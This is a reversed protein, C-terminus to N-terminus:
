VMARDFFSHMVKLFSSPHNSPIAFIEKVKTKKIIEKRLKEAIEEGKGKRWGEDIIIYYVPHYFKNQILNLTEFLKEKESVPYEETLIVGISGIAGSALFFNLSSMNIGVPLNIFEVRIKDTPEYRGISGFSALDNEIGSLDIKYNDFNKLIDVLKIVAERNESFVLVKPSSVYIFERRVDEIKETYRLIVDPPILEEKRRTEDKVPKMLTFHRKEILENITLLVEYDPFTCNEVIDGVKTYFEGLLLVEKVIPRLDPDEESVPKVLKIYDNPSPLNKKKKEFEDLQRMAEMILNDPLTKIRVPSVPKGPIFEFKGKKWQLLRFLAKEGEIKGLMANIIHGKEIYVFGKEGKGPELVVTGDRKNLVLVQILDILHMQELKGEIEKEGKDIEKSSFIKEMLKSVAERVASLTVRDKKVIFDQKEKLDEIEKDKRTVFIISTKSVKPNNRIIQVLNSVPIVSIESDLVIIDPQEAIIADLARGGGRAIVVNYGEKRLSDRLNILLKQDDSSALIKISDLKNM